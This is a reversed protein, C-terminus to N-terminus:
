KKTQDTYWQTSTSSDNPTPKYPTQKPVAISPGASPGGGDEQMTPRGGPKSPKSALAGKAMQSVQDATMKPREGTEASPPPPAAAAQRDAESKPAFLIGVAVLMIVLITALVIPPKRKKM